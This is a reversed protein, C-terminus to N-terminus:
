PKNTSSGTPISPSSGTKLNGPTICPPGTPNDKNFQDIAKVVQGDDRINEWFAVQDRNLVLEDYPAHLQQCGLKTLQSSNDQSTLYFVDQLVVYDNNLKRIHGFYTSYSQQSDGGNLFVAQYKNPDVRDFEGGPSNNFGLFLSVAILILSCGLLVIFLEIRVTRAAWNIHKRRPHRVPRDPEHAVPEPVTVEKITLRPVETNALKDDRSLFDM